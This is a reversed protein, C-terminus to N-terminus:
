KYIFFKVDPRKKEGFSYSLPQSSTRMDRGTDMANPVYGWSSSKTEKGPVIVVVHGSGGKPDIWGAVVFYGQNAYGQAQSMQIEGWSSSSQWYRVMENAKCNMGSPLTGYINKFAAQVGKNCM